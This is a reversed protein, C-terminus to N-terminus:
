RTGRSLQPPPRLPDTPKRASDPKPPMLERVRESAEHFLAAHDCAGSGCFKAFQSLREKTNAGVRCQIAAFNVEVSQQAAAGADPRGGASPAPGLQAQDESPRPLGPTRESRRGPSGPISAPAPPKPPACAKNLYDDVYRPYPAMSQPIVTASTTSEYTQIAADGADVHRYFAVILEETRELNDLLDSMPQENKDRQSGARHFYAAGQRDIGAANIFTCASACERNRREDITVHSISQTAAVYNQWGRQLDPPIQPSSGDPVAAIFDPVYDFKGGDVAHTNVWFIRTAEGLRLGMGVSGGPSALYFTSLWGDGAQIASIIRDFDSEAGQGPASDIPGTLVVARCTEPSPLRHQDVAFFAAFKAPNNDFIRYLYKYRSAEICRVEIAAQAPALAGAWVLTGALMLMVNVSFRGSLSFMRMWM